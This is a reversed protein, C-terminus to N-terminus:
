DEYDVFDIFMNEEDLKKLIAVDKPDNNDWNVYDGIGDDYIEYGECYARNESIIKVASIASMDDSDLIILGDYIKYGEHKESLTELEYKFCESANDFIKGDDAVYHKVEKM